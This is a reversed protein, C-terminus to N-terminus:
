PSDSSNMEAIAHAMLYKAERDSLLRSPPTHLLRGMLTRTEEQRMLSEFQEHRWSVAEDHYSRLVPDAMMEDRIALGAKFELISCEEVQNFNREVWYELGLLGGPEPVNVRGRAAKLVFAAMSQVAYHNLQVLAYNPRGFPSFVGKSAFRDPLRRGQGDFWVPLDRGNRVLARPRHVGPKEYRGDNRYLTKFMAHRWPWDMVEPAARTFTEIVPRDEYYIRDGGGFLRWTMTIADAEPLAARLATLTGDGTKINIFEDVDLSCIWDAHRVKDIKAAQNLATFQIGRKGYPGPNPIHTLWGLEACHDLIKCSSDSCDNSFVVFHDFGVALHHALWEILYAGENRVCTIAVTSM